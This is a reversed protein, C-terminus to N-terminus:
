SRGRVATFLSSIGPRAGSTVLISELPYDAGSRDAYFKRIANRLSELGSSPPYTFEGAALASVIWEAMAKPIRFEKPSFDGITLNTVPRGTAAAARVEAGIK